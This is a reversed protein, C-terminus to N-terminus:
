PKELSAVAVILLLAGLVMSVIPLVVDKFSVLEKSGIGLAVSSIVLGISACICMSKVLNRTRSVTGIFALVLCGFCLVQAFLYVKIAATLFDLIQWFRWPFRIPVTRGAWENVTRLVTPAARWEAASVLLLSSVLCVVGLVAVLLYGANMPRPATSAITTLVPRADPHVGTSAGAPSGAGTAPATSIPPPFAASPLPAACAGCFRAEARNSTNCM